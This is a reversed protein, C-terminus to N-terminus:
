DALWEFGWILAEAVESARLLRAAKIKWSQPPMTLRSPQNM